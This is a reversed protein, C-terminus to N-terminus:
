GEQHGEEAGVARLAELLADARAEAAQRAGVAEQVRQAAEQEVQRVRAQAEEVRQGAVQEAQQMRAEAQRAREDAQEAREEAQTARTKADEAAREAVDAADLAEDREAVAARMSELADRSLQEAERSAVKWAEAWVARVLTQPPAPTAGADEGQDPGKLERLAAAVTQRRLAGGDGKMQKIVNNISPFVDQAELADVAAAVAAREEDSIQPAQQEAM